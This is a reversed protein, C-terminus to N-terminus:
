AVRGAGESPIVPFAIPLRLGKEPFSRELAAALEKVEVGLVIASGGFGAGTLRAGSAGCRHGCEVVADLEACSVEYDHRLSAHSANLLDGIGDGAALRGAAALVRENESVVHRARRRLEGKLRQEVDLRTADRLQSVGLEAAAQECSRRRAAYAGEANSHRVGTDVVVLPGIALPVAEVVLSRFDILLGHGAQASLVAFQDLMGVPVGVFHSEAAHCLEALQYRDLGTGGLEDLAVAVAAVLAASSSLGSGVPVASDVLVDAGPVDAGAQDLAWFVGVPYRAWGVVSDRDLDELDAEATADDQASWCRVHRDSRRGVAVLTQRDIAFPLAFGANYDTHEGILNVRGPAQWVGEPSRGTLHRFRDALSM